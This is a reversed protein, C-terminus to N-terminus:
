RYDVRKIARREGTIKKVIEYRDHARRALWRSGEAATKSGTQLNQWSKRLSIGSIINELSFGGSLKQLYSETKEANKNEESQWVYTQPRWYFSVASVVVKMLPQGNIKILSLGAAGSIILISLIFWLWLQVIFFLLLSLGVASGIYLFQKLTLPGVIKDEIDVFQPVQFQM